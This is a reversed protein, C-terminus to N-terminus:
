AAARVSTEAIWREIEIVPVRMSGRGIRVYGIQGATLMARLVSETVGIAAAAEDCRLALRPVPAIAGEFKKM